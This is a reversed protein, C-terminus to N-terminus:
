RRPRRRLGSTRGAREPVAPAPPGASRRGPLAWRCERGTRVGPSCGRPPRRSGTTGRDRVAPRATGPSRSLPHPPQDARDLAVERGLALGAWDLLVTLMLVQQGPPPVAVKRGALDAVDTVVGARGVRGIGQRAVMGVIKSHMTDDLHGVITSYPGILGFDLRGAELGQQIQASSMVVSVEVTVGEPAFRQWFLPASAHNRAYVCTRVTRGAGAPAADWGCGALTVAAGAATLGLFGPRSLVPM